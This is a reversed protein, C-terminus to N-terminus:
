VFRTKLCGQSKHCLQQPNYSNCKRIRSGQASM